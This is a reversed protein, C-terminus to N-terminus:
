HIIVGKLFNIMVIMHESENIKLVLTESSTFTGFDFADFDPNVTQTHPNLDYFTNGSGSDVIAYSQFIGSQALSSAVSFLLIFHLAFLLTKKHLKKVM